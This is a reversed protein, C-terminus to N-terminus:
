PAAKELSRREGCCAGRSSRCKRAARRLSLLRRGAPHGRGPVVLRVDQHDPVASGPEPGADRGVVFSRLHQEELLGREASAARRGDVHPLPGSGVIGVRCRLERELREVALRRQLDALCPGVFGHLIGIVGVLVAEFVRQALRRTGLVVDEGSVLLHVDTRSRAVALREEFGHPMSTTNSQWSSSSM